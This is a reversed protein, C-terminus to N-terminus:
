LWYQNVTFWLKRGQVAMKDPWVIRPDRVVLHIQGDDENRSYIAEQEHGTLYITGDDTEALGDAHSPRVDLTQVAARVDADATPTSGPGSPPVRLLSTPVRYWTRSALPCYYLWEGDASLAIGDAGVPLHHYYPVGGYATVLRQDPLVSPHQDLHRWSRGSGLDVVVLGNKGEPSADTVYAVGQGSTGSVNSRLDFRVDNLFSEPYAVDLPFVITRLATSSNSSLSFAVLKGGGSNLLM